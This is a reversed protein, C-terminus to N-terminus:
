FNLMFSKKEKSKVREFIEKMRDLESVFIFDILDNIKMPDVKKEQLFGYQWYDAREKQGRARLDELWSNFKLRIAEELEELTSVPHELIVHFLPNNDGPILIMFSGTIKEPMKPGGEDPM